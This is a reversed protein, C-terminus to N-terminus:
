KEYQIIIDNILKLKRHLEGDTIDPKLNDRIIQRAEILAKLLDEMKKLVTALVFYLSYGILCKNEM